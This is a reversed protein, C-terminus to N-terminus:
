REEEPEPHEGDEGEVEFDGPDLPYPRSIVRGYNASGPNGVPHIAHRFRDISRASAESARERCVEGLM